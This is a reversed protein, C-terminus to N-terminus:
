VLHKQKKQTNRPYSKPLTLVLINEKIIINNISTIINNHKNQTSFYTSITRKLSSLRSPLKIDVQYLRFFNSLFSGYNFVRRWLIPSYAISHPMIKVVSQHPLTLNMTPPAVGPSTTRPEVQFCASYAMSFLGTLM